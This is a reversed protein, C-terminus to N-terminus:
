GEALQAILRPYLTAHDSLWQLSANALIIDVPAPARWDAIDAVNFGIDPLRERAARIMDDSSDLGRVTATPYRAALVETSNGPGCGLDIAIRAADRPIAAVLDRVRRTREDEFRAYQQASWTM